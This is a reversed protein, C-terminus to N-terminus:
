IYVQVLASLFDAQEIKLNMNLPTDYFTTTVDYRKLSNCKIAIQIILRILYENFIKMQFKGIIIIPMGLSVFISSNIIQCNTM